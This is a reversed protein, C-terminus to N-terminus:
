FELVLHISEIQDAARQIPTRQEVYLVEGSNFQVESNALSSINGTAGSDSGTIVEGVQFPLVVGLSENQIYSCVRTAADYSVVYATANSTSGTITEDVVLNGSVGVSLTLKKTASLTSSSAVNSTGYDLPNRVLGVRRFDNAIPFDGSGDEYEFRSNVMVYFACLESDANFGHGGSPSIVAEAKAGTGGGGSITVNAYSYGSGANTITIGSLANSTITATATANVGDGVIIVNPTSTYGSGAAKVLIQDLAGSVAAASVTSDTRTPMFDATLFKLADGASITYMYKWRYGDATTIITTGTGTPKVTSAAGENNFICKYVNFDDTLVYFNSDELTTAGSEAPVSVSINSAYQDYVTGTEWDIRRTVLGIDSPSIKKLAVMDQWYEVTSAVSDVPVNAVLENNWAQPRGIFAYLVNGSEYGNKFAEAVRVRFDKTIIAPM